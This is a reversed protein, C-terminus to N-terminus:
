VGTILLNATGSVAAGTANYLTITCGTVSIATATGAVAGGGTPTVQINPLVRFQAPLAPSAPETAFAITTGSSSVSLGTIAYVVPEADITVSFASLYAPVATALGLALQAYCAGTIEASNGILIAAGPTGGTPWFQASLNAEATENASNGGAAASWNAWIRFNGSVGLDIAPPVFTVTSRSPDPVFTTFLKQPAIQGATVSSDPVLVGSYHLLLGASLAANGLWDPAYSQSFLVVNLNPVTLDVQAAPGNLGSLTDYGRIYFTWSGPPVSANTMETSRSARTLLTAASLAGGQPGYLIDYTLSAAAYAPDSWTFVVAGGSVQAAFNQIAQPPPPGQITHAYATVQDLGPEGGGWLNFPTFKFYLVTGIQDATYPLTVGSGDLRAFLGDGIALISTGYQGRRLYTGFEYTDDGTYTATSYAIIENYLNAGVASILVALTHGLDADSKTGSTITTNDGVLQVTLTDTTDPDPGAPFYYQIYGMRCSGIIQGANKYPGDASSAVWVTVGGYPDGARGTALVQIELANGTLATPPEFIIPVMGLTGPDSEYNPAYGLKPQGGYQPTSGTGDLVEEATLTLSWDQQNETIELIRVLQGALGLGADSIAIVDMPDLLIFHWPVTFSYQNRVQQRGLQLNCSTLAPAESCFFHLQRTDAPRLGFLNIAADDQAEAIAPNYSNGRDLYELKVDNYADSPRKRVCIVPDDSTFSSVGIAATGENKLFDDDDLSYLPGAALPPTYTHGYGSLTQDGYPVFTLLGGSWVFEGNLGTSFDKLYSNMAQPATLAPSIFLGQAYAYDQLLSLDGINAAPFGAGYRPNALFDALSAAPDADAVDTIVVIEGADASNFGYVGYLGGEVSVVFQGATPSSLTQTLADGIVTFTVGTATATAANSLIITNPYTFSDGSVTASAPNSMVLSAATVGTVTTGALIVGASDFVTLGTVIGAISALNGIISTGHYADGTTTLVTTTFSFINPTGDANSAAPSITAYSGSVSTVTTGAGIFGNSDAVASGAQVHAPIGSAVFITDPYGSGGDQLYGQAQPTYAFTITDGNMGGGQVTTNLTVTAPTFVAITTGAPFAGASDTIPVQGSGSSISLNTVVESGSTTNGTFSGSAVASQIVTGTSIGPGSILAGQSLGTVSSLNTVVTSGSTTDGTPKGGYYVGPAIALDILTVQAGADAEAFTYIVQEYITGVNNITLTYQGASPTGTVRTLPAGTATYVCGQSASGPIDAPNIPGRGQSYLIVPLSNAAGPNQAEVAYPAVAPVTVQETVSASLNWWAPTVQWPSGGITFVEQVANAISGRVEWNLNPLEPSSGLSLPNAGAYALASYGLAHTAYTSTLFPWPNQGVAGTFATFNLYALAEPQKNNWVCLIDDIPGECLGLLVNVTYTYSQPSGKGGGGGVGKGGGSQSVPYSQFGIYDILNGALRQQGHVVPIATGAVASQIRLGAAPVVAKNVRGSAGGTLFNM